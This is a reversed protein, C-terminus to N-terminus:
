GCKREKHLTHVFRSVLLNSVYVSRISLWLARARNTVKLLNFKEGWLKLHTKIHAMGIHAGRSTLLPHWARSHSNYIRLLWRAQTSTVLGLDGPFAVLAMVRTGRSMQKLCRLFSLLYKIFISLLFTFSVSFATHTGSLSMHGLGWILHFHKIRFKIIFSFLNRILFSRDM